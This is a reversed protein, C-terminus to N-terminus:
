LSVNHKKAAANIARTTAFGSGCQSCQWGSVPLWFWTHPVPGFVVECKHLTSHKCAKTEKSGPNWGGDAQEM